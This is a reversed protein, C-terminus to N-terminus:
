IGMGAFGQVALYFMVATIIVTRWSKKGSTMRDIASTYLWTLACFVAAGLLAAKWIEAAAILGAAYPLLGFAIASFVPICIWCRKAGPAIFHELVLAVLSILAMNVIDLRPLIVAPAFVDVLMYGLCAAFLVAILLASLLMDRAKM